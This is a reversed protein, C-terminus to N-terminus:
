SSTWPGLPSRACFMRGTISSTSASERTADVAVASQRCPRRGRQGHSSSHRVWPVAQSSSGDAAHVGHNARQQDPHQCQGNGKLPRGGDGHGKAIGASVACGTRSGARVRMHMAARPVSGSRRRRVTTVARRSRQRARCMLLRRRGVGVFCARVLAAGARGAARHPGQGGHHQRHRGRPGRGREEGLQRGRNVGEGGVAGVSRRSGGLGSPRSQTAGKRCAAGARIWARQRQGCPRSPM